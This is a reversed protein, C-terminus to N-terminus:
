DTPNVLVGAETWSGGTGWLVKYNDKDTTFDITFAGQAGSQSKAPVVMLTGVNLLTATGAPKDNQAEWIRATNIIQEATAADAKIRSNKQIDAFRPIAILALIGLIAIVV